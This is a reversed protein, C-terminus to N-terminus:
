QLGVPVPQGGRLEWRARSVREWAIEGHQLGPGRRGSCSEDTRSWDDIVDRGNDKSGDEGTETMLM